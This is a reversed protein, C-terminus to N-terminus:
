GSSRTLDWRETAFDPTMGASEYLGTAPANTGAVSLEAIQLGAARLADLLALLLARGHGRGRARRAVALQKVYGVDGEWREGVAAAVLGADDEIALRFAPESGAAVEAHWTAYTQATNGDIESFAAEVLEHVARGEAELDFPRVAAGGPPPPIDGMAARMRQYVQAREYGAAALHAAAGANAAVVQQAVRWGRERTRREVAERLLTGVGRGEHAPHVAVRASGEGIDAWGILAGDVDEVVFADRELDYDPLAWDELVDQLSYDPRGVDAVDRARIVAHVAEAEDRTPARLLV